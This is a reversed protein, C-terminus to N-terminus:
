RRPGDGLKLPGYYDDDQQQEYQIAVGRAEQDARVAALQRACVDESSETGTIQEAAQATVSLDEVRDDLSHDFDEWESQLFDADNHQQKAM